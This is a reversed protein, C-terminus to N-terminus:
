DKDCNLGEKAMWVFSLGPQAQSLEAWAQKNEKREENKNLIM